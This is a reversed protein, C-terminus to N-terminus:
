NKNKENRELSNLVPKPLEVWDDNNPADRTAGLIEILKATFHQCNNTPWNYNKAGWNGSEKVKNIFDLLKMDNKAKLKMPSISPYREKFQRLTMVYAKAGDQELYAPSNKKNFYRGYVFIAGVSNDNADKDNGVWIASHVLDPAPIVHGFTKRVKRFFASAFNLDFVINPSTGLYITNIDVNGLTKASSLDDDNDKHSSSGHSKKKGDGYGNEFAGDQVDKSPADINPNDLSSCGSFAGSEVTAKGDAHVNLNTLYKSDTFANSQINVNGKTNIDVSKLENCNRFSGATFSVTNSDAAYVAGNTANNIIVLGEIQSDLFADQGFSVDAASHITLSTLNTCNQFSDQVFSVTNNSYINIENINSNMFSTIGFTIGGNSIVTLNKLDPTNRFCDQVFSVFGGAKIYVEHITSDIFSTIGATFGQDTEIHVLGFNTVNKLANEVVSIQQGAKMYLQGVSADNFCTIGLTIGQVTTLNVLEIDKAGKFSDQVLSIQQGALCQIEKIEAGIFSTLGFTIGQKAELNILEVGSANKFSDQVFQISAAKINIQEVYSSTAASLGFTCDGTVDINFAKIRSSIFKAMGSEFSSGTYNITPMNASAFAGEQISLQNTHFVLTTIATCGTFSDAGISVDSGSISISALSTFGEFAKAQITCPGTGTIVLTTAAKHEAVQSAGITQENTITLTTGSYSIEAVGLSILYSLILFMNFFSTIKDEIRIM